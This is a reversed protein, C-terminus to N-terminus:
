PWRFALDTEDLLNTKLPRDEAWDILTFVSVPLMSGVTDRRELSELFHRRASIRASKRRVGHRSRIRRSM